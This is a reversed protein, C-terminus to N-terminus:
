KKLPKKNLYYGLIAASGAIVLLVYASSQTKFNFMIITWIVVFFGAVVYLFNKM